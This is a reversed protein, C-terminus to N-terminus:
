FSYVITLYPYLCVMDTEVVQGRGSKGREVLALMIGFACMLGGGGFDALINLPFSPTDPTGPLIQPPYLLLIM